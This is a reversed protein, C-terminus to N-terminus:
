FRSGEKNHLLFKPYMYVDFISHVHITKEIRASQVSELNQKSFSLLKMVCINGSKKKNEEDITNYKQKQNLSLAILM